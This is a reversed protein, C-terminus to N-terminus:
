NRVLNAALFFFVCCFIFIIIHFWGLSHFSVHFTGGILFACMLIVWLIASFSIFQVFSYIFPSQEVPQSRKCTVKVAAAVAVAAGVAVATKPGAEQTLVAAASKLKSCVFCFM